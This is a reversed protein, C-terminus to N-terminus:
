EVTIRNKNFRRGDFVFRVRAWCIGARGLLNYLLLGVPLIKQIFPTIYLWVTLKQFVERLDEAGFVISDKSRKIKWLRSLKEALAEDRMRVTIEFPDAPNYVFRRKESLSEVASRALGKRWYEANFNRAKVDIPYVSIGKVATMAETCAVPCGSFFVPVAGTVSLAASFLQLESISKGNATIKSIRSTMTHAIHGGSGSSAHMGLYLVADLNKLNGMGPVTGNRYGSIIRARKDILNTFLNYGTRHFDKITISKVGADFLASTVASVDLSMSRCARAWEVNLFSSAKYSRCGSSGEIDCVILINEFQMENNEGLAGHLL